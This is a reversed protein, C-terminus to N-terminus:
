THMLEYVGDEDTPFLGEALGAGEKAIQGFLFEEARDGGAFIADDVEEAVQDGNM